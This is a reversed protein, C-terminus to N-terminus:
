DWGPPEAWQGRRKSLAEEKSISLNKVDDLDAGEFDVNNLIVNKLDARRLNVNQLNASSLNAGVLDGQILKADHLYANRSRCTLAFCILDKRDLVLFFLM